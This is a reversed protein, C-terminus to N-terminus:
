NAHILMYASGPIGPQDATKGRSISLKGNGLDASSLGAVTLGVPAHGSETLVGTLGTADATGQNDLWLLSFDQPTVGWITLDDGSPFNVATSWVPSHAGRADVFFTNQGTGGAESVNIGDMGSCTRIFS